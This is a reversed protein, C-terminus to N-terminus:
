MFMVNVTTTAAMTIRIVANTTMVMNPPPMLWTLLRASAVANQLDCHSDAQLAVPILGMVHFIAM